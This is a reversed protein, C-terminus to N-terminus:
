KVKEACTNCLFRGTSIIVCDECITMACGSCELLADGNHTTICQECTGCCNSCKAISLGARFLDLSTFVRQQHAGCINKHCSYCQIKAYEGQNNFICDSCIHCAYLDYFDKYTQYNRDRSHNRTIVSKILFERLNAPLM